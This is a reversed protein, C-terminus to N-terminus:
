ATTAGDHDGQRRHRTARHFRDTGVPVGVIRVDDGPYLGVASTFYGVVKHGARSPWVLYVGVLLTAVLLAALAVRLWAAARSAISNAHTM